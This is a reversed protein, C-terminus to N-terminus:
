SAGGPLLPHDTHLSCSEGVEAARGRLHLFGSAEAKQGRQTEKKNMLFGHIHHRDKKSQRDRQKQTEQPSPQAGSCM